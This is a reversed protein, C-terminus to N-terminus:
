RSPNDEVDSHSMVKQRAHTKKKEKEDNNRNYKQSSHSIHNNPALPAPRQKKKTTNQEHERPWPKSDSLVSQLISGQESKGIAFSEFVFWKKPRSEM